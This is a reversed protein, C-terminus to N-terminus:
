LNDMRDAAAALAAAAARLVGASTSAAESAARELGFMSLRRDVLLAAGRRQRASVVVQGGSPWPYIRVQIERYTHEGASDSM